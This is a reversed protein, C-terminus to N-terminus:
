LMRSMRFHEIGCEEFVEGEKQFGFKEYLALATTQAHLYLKVPENSNNEVAIDELLSELLMSGIGKGRAEKLIAFRELKIGNDTKRWRATGFANEENDIALFHSASNDYEDYEEEQPVHQEKVFVEERIKRAKEMHAPQDIKIIGIM